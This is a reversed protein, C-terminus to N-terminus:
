GMPPRKQHNKHIKLMSLLQQVDGQSIGPAPTAPFPNYDQTPNMYPPNPHIYPQHAPLPHQDFTPLTPTVLPLSPQFPALPPPRTQPPLDSRNSPVSGLSKDPYPSHIPNPVGKFEDVHTSAARTSSARASLPNSSTYNLGTMSGHPASKPTEVVPVFTKSEILRHTSQFHIDKFVAFNFNQLLEATAAKTSVTEEKRKVEFEFSDIRHKWTAETEEDLCTNPANNTEEIFAKHWVRSRSDETLLEDTAKENFQFIISQYVENFEWTSLKKKPYKKMSEKEKEEKIKLFKKLREKFDRSNAYSDNEDKDYQTSCQLVDTEISEVLM